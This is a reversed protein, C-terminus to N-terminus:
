LRKRAQNMAKVPDGNNPKFTEPESLLSFNPSGQYRAIDRSEFTAHLENGLKFGCNAIAEDADQILVEVISMALTYILLNIIVHHLLAGFTRLKLWLQLQIQFNDHKEIVQIYRFKFM